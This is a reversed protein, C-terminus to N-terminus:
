IRQQSLHSDMVSLLKEFGLPKSFFYNCGADFCAKKIDNFAMFTQVIILIHSNIKKIQKILELSKEYSFSLEILIADTQNKRIYELVKIESTIKILRCSTKRLLLQSLIKHNLADDDILLITKKKWDLLKETHNQLKMLLDKKNEHDIMKILPPITKKSIIILGFATRKLVLGTQDM